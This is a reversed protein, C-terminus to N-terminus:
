QHYMGLQYKKFIARWHLNKYNCAKCCPRDLGKIFQQKWIALLDVEGLKGYNQHYPATCCHLIYGNWSFALNHYANCPRDESFTLPYPIGALKTAEQLSLNAKAQNSNAQELGIHLPRIDQKFESFRKKWSELESRNDGTLIFNLIIEQNSKKHKKFWYLTQLARNFYPKGHMHEYMEPSNASITFRVSDLNKDVLLERNEYAIGNTNTETKAYPIYKKALATIHDLRQELLGDGNMYPKIYDIEYGKFYTFIYEIMEMSMTGKPIQFSGQPNCFICQLNCYNHTDLQLTTPFDVWKPNGHLIRYFCRKVKKVGRSFLSHQNTIM